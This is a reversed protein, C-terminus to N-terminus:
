LCAKGYPRTEVGARSYGLTTSVPYPVLSTKPPYIKTTPTAILKLGPRLAIAELAIAEILSTKGGCGIVAVVGGDLLGLQETITV